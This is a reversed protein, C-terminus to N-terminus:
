MWTFTFSHIIEQAREPSCADMLNKEAERNVLLSVMYKGTLFLCFLLFDILRLVTVSELMKWRFPSIFHYKERLCSGANWFLPFFASIMLWMLSFYIDLGKSALLLRLCIADILWQHSTFLNSLKVAERGENGCFLAAGPATCSDCGRGRPHAKRERAPWPEM